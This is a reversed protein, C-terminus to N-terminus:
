GELSYDMWDPCDSLRDAVRQDIESCQPEKGHEEVYEDYLECWIEKYDM